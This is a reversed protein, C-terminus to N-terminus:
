FKCTKLLKIDKIFEFYSEFLIVTIKGSIVTVINNGFKKDLFETMFDPVQVEHWFNHYHLSNFINFTFKLIAIIIHLPIIIGITFVGSIIRHLTM